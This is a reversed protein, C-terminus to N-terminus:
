LSVPDRTLTGNVCRLLSRPNHNQLEEPLLEPPFNQFCVPRTWRQIAATGVSTFRSDTSAPYPGGHQMAPCVEVGTPFGNILLRGARAQLMEILPASERLEEDLLHLSATLQGELAAALELFQRTSSARVILTLPGFVESRLQPERLFVEGNTILAAPAAQTADPNPNAISNALVAVEQIDALRAAGLAYADRIGPTLLTGPTSTLFRSSLHKLFTEAELGEAVIVLGPKTCFQGVGLTVSNALGDAIQAARERLAGPFLFVPNLSSMEAFVPIPNHRQNAADFLARGAKESGTFGVARVTPHSVLALATQPSPGHLLSFVGRHIGRKRAAASIASAVWESTGPHAPHAKVVVPCGAALASATDGGAVSFALPFNSAGFVAVPGLPVRIRRLDPRPLPKREPLATDITAECWSGERLLDAFLRLQNVTRTREGTLRDNPLGTELHARELLGDGLALIEEGIQDLFDARTHAASKGFFVSANEAARAANELCSADAAQFIPKLPQSTLPSIAEFPTGLSEVFQGALLNKGSLPGFCSM